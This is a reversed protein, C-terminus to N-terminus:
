LLIGYDNLLNGKYSSLVNPSDRPDLADATLDGCRLNQTRLIKSDIKLVISFPTEKWPYLVLKLLLIPLALVM